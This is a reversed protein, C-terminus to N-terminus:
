WGCNSAMAKWGQRRELVREPRSARVSWWCECYACYYILLKGYYIMRCVLSNCPVCKKNEEFHQAELYLM